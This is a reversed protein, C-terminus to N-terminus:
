LGMLKKLADGYGASRFNAQEQELAGSDLFDDIQGLANPQTITANGGARGAADVQDFMSAELGHFHSTLRAEEEDTLFRGLAHEAADKASARLATPDTFNREVPTYDQGRQKDRLAKNAGAKGTLFDDLTTDAGGDTGNVVATDRAARAFGDAVSSSWSGGSNAYDADSLYGADHLKDVMATYAEPDKTSLNALWQVGNRVTMLNQGVRSNYQRDMSDASGTLGPNTRMTTTGDPGRQTGLSMLYPVDPNIGESDLADFATTKPYPQTGETGDYSVTVSGDDAVSTIRMRQGNVWVFGQRQQAQHLRLGTAREHAAREEAAKAKDDARRKDAAAGAATIPPLPGSNSVPAGKPQNRKPDNELRNGGADVWYSVKGSRDRVPQPQGTRSAQRKAEDATVRDITSGSPPM